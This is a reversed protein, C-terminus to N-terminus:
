HKTSEPVAQDWIDLYKLGSGTNFLVVIEDKHIFGEIVLQTNDNQANANGLITALLFLIMITIRSM